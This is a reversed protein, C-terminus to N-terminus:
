FGPHHLCMAEARRQFRRARRQYPPTTRVGPEWHPPGLCAITADSEDLRRVPNMADTIALFMEIPLDNLSDGSVGGVRELRVVIIGRSDDVM